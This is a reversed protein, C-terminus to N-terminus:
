PGPASLAWHAASRAHLVTTDFVPLSCHEPQVLMAIETCGLIIAQAGRAGLDAIVRLYAQRSADNIQGLCLEQYIVQHVWDRDALAPTLVTLGHQELRQRYFDQEM